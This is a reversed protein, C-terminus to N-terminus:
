SAATTTKAEGPLQSSDDLLQALRSSLDHLEPSADGNESQLRQQLTKYRAALETLDPPTAPRARTAHHLAYARGILLELAIALPPTMILGWVAFTQTLPIVLLFTLLLSLQRDGRFWRRMVFNLGAFVLLTVAAMSIALTASDLSGLGALVLTALIGGLVPVVAAVAGIIAALLPFPFDVLYAALGLALATLASQVTQARIYAGVAAEIERWSDRVYARQRAPLLSFFLREFRDQDISWYISAALLLFIIALSGTLGSTLRMLMPVLLELGDVPQETDPLVFPQPLLGAVAQQWGDGRGWEAHFSEYAIVSWNAAINLEQLVADSLLLGVLLLSGIVLLYVLLQAIGTSLGRRTLSQVFPRIAAAIFLSLLFLFLISRFQWLIFLAALTALITVTYIILRRM